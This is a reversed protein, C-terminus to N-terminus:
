RPREQCRMAEVIGKMTFADLTWGYLAKLERLLLDEWTRELSSTLLADIEHVRRLKEELDQKIDPWKEKADDVQCYRQIVSDRHLRRMLFQLTGQKESLRCLEDYFVPRNKYSVAKPNFIVQLGFKSLRYGLEIDELGLELQQKFGGHRVMFSRKCSSRGWRLYNFHFQQEERSSVPIFRLDEIESVYKMIETVPFSQAWPADGLVAVTEESNKEHGELHERLRDPDAIEDENLLLLVRGNAAYIGLNKAASIGSRTLSLYKLALRSSFMRCIDPTTQQSGSRPSGIISILNRCFQKQTLAQVPEM